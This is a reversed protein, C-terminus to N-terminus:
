RFLPHHLVAEQILHQIEEVTQGAEIVVWRAIDEEILAEYGGQVRKHFELAFADLRNWEAGQEAAKQRRQLGDQANIQLYFTLDPRLGGTAFDLMTRLVEIDLGHGYGQYALTSDAYRDLIVIQGLQLAPRVVQTVLQARSAIYLLVETHPHMATNKLNHLIVRIEDGIPTGGPERTCLVPYGKQELYTKLLQIQTTKGSGDLGEFTIFM